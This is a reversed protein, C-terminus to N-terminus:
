PQKLRYPVRRPSRAVGHALARRAPPAAADPAPVHQPIRPAFRTAAAGATAPASVGHIAERSTTFRRRADFLNMRAYTSASRRRRAAEFM